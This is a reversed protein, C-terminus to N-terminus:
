AKRIGVCDAGGAILHDPDCAVIRYSDSLELVFGRPPGIRGTGLPM